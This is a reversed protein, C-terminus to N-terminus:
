PESQGPESESMLMEELEPHDRGVARRIEADEDSDILGLQGAFDLMAGAVHLFERVLEHQAQYRLKPPRPGNVAALDVSRMRDAIDYAARVLEVARRHLDADSTTSM